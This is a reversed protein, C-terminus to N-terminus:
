RLNVVQRRGWACCRKERLHVSRKLTALMQTGSVPPEATQTGPQEDPRMASEYTM